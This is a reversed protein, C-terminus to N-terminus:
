KKFLEVVQREDLLLGSLEVYSKGKINYKALLKDIGLKSIMMNKIHIQLHEVDQKTEDDM